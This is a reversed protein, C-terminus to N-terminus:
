RRQDKQIVQSIYDSLEQDSNWLEYPFGYPSLIEDGEEDFDGAYEGGVHIKKMKINNVVLEDWQPVDGSDPDATLTRKKTYDTLVSKLGVSHKKFVQEIGDMYDKIILGMTKKDNIKESRLEMWAKAIPWDLEPYEAHTKIIGWLMSEIDKKIGKLKKKGGLGHETVPDLLTKVIIWRRGSKDPASAIDDAGAALVDGELEVVYGGETRIGYSLMDWDMNYFGSISRKKGQLKILRQIGVLDTVHFVTSRITKPWIRKFISPSLPIRLDKIGGRASLDFLASSLSEQWAPKYHLETLYGNFSKM